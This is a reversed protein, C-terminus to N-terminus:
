VRVILDRPIKFLGFWFCSLGFVSFRPLIIFDFAVILVHHM